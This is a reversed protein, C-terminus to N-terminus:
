FVLNLPSPISHGKTPHKYQGGYLSPQKKGYETIARLEDRTYSVSLNRPQRGTNGFSATPGTHVNNPCNLENKQLAAPHEIDPFGNAAPSCRGTNRYTSSIYTTISRNTTTSTSVTSRGAGNNISSRGGPYKRSSCAKRTGKLKLLLRRPKLRGAERDLLAQASDRRM